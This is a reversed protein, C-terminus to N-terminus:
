TQQGLGVALAREIDPRRLEVDVWRQCTRLLSDESGEAAEAYFTSLEQLPIGALRMALQVAAVTPHFGSWTRIMQVKIRPYKPQEQTSITNGNVM